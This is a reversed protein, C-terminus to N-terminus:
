ERYVHFYYTGINEDDGAATIGSLSLEYDGPALLEASVPFGPFYGKVSAETRICIPDGGAGRLTARYLPYELPEMKPDLQVLGTGSPIDIAQRGGPSRSGGPALTLLLTQIQGALSPPGPKRTSQLDAVERELQISRDQESRLAQILELNKNQFENLRSELLATSLQLTNRLESIKVVSWLGGALLLVLSAAFALKLPRIQTHWFTRWANPRVPEPSEAQKHAAVYRKLSKAFRLKQKREPAALFFNEFRERERGALGGELYDDILEDEVRRLEEFVDSDVMLRRELREQEDPNLDGLLYPKLSSEIGPESNMRSTETKFNGSM